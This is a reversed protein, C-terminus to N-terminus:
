LKALWTKAKDSILEEANQLLFQLDEEKPKYRQQYLFKLTKEFITKHEERNHSIERHCYGCLCSSNFASDSLRGLIHHIELGGRNNGNSGCLFCAYHDMYLNRTEQTFGNRLKM